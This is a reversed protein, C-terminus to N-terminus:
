NRSQRVTFAVGAITITSVRTITQNISVRFTITKNGSLSEPNSIHIWKANSKVSYDCNPAATVDVTFYGGKTPAFQASKNLSFNCVTQNQLANAVNVRGSTKVVNNWQPLQDVTNMLTANLSAASINPNYAALLAAAGAPHPSAM